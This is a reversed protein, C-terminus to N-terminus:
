YFKLLIEIFNVQGMFKDENEEHDRVEELLKEENARAAELKEQVERIEKASKEYLVSCRLIEEYFDKIIRIM